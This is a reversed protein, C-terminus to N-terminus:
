VVASVDAAGCALAKRFGPHVVFKGRGTKLPVVLRALNYHAQYSYVTGAASEVGLFGYWLLLQKARELDAEPGLSAVLLDEVEQASMQIPCEIFLYPLLEYQPDIDRIEFELGQLLDNSFAQEAQIVDDATVKSHGRNIAVGISKRAFSLVDRPRGLTRTLMYTFSHEGLVEPDFIQTWVANFDGELTTSDQIRRLLMEQFLAEDDWSLLAPTEKGHDSTQKLTHEWIDNRLFLVCRCPIGSNVLSYELKRASDLLSQIILVDADTTGRIPWGKDLNDILIWVEGKGTLYTKIADTLYKIDNEFIYQTATRGQKEAEGVTRTVLDLLRESFDGESHVGSASYAAALMDYKTLDDADLIRQSWSTVIKHAIECLLLYHWFAGLTHGQRGESLQDLVDERLKKFQHGEPKLDLVLNARAQSADARLEYFMATKGTGKRGVVIRIRTRRVENYQGTAVYFQQIRTVDNEAAPDGLDVAELLRLDQRQVGSREEQLKDIVADLFPQLHGAIESTHHYPRVVDRYDIPQQAQGGEHLMLVAKQSAMALGAVFACRGNHVLAGDRGPDILHVIVGLSSRVRHIADHLSLRSTEHPDFSRFRIRSKKLASMLRVSGETDWRSKVVFIPQKTDTVVTQPGPLSLNFERTLKDVLAASNQYDLYGVTDLLGLELFDKRNVQYTTDRIPVVKIGLGMAFGIEFLANFNLTTIDSVVYEAHRIAKCIECFIVKGEIPLEKWTSRRRSPDSQNLKIVAAEIAESIIRPENGYVFFTDTRLCDQFAQDCPGSAYQCYSPTIFRDPLTPAYPLAAPNQDRRRKSHKHGM